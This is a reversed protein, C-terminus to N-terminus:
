LSARLSYGEGRITHILEEKSGRNIKSRLRSIHTEVLTTRPEFHFGWVNELLMQRTVTSAEHRALFELLKFEQPQLPIKEGGRTVLRKVIDIRLDGCCLETPSTDPHSRGRRALARIRAFLEGLAFPKTLYDDGGADLAEIRDAIECMTTLYLVPTEIGIARIGKVLSLGDLGPMKRDLVIVDHNRETALFLGSRGDAAHDVVHGQAEVGNRIYRVVEPDDEVLLIRM